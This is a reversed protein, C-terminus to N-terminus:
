DELAEIRKELRRIKQLLLGVFEDYALGLNTGDGSVDVFGGFDARELGAATLAEEVEQAVFGVHYTDGRDNYKFRVPTLKDLMQEYAEPLAEITNKHRRDSTVAAGTKYLYVADKGRLYLNTYDNGVVCSNANDVRLVYYSNGDKDAIRIGSGNPFRAEKGLHIETGDIEVKGGLIKVPAGGSINVVGNVKNIIGARASVEADLAETTALGALQEPTVCGALQDQTVYVVLSEPKVYRSDTQALVRAEVSTAVANLDSTYSVKVADLGSQGKRDGAADAGTLSQIDKGLVIQSNAPNLLDETMQSLQFDENVGHPASVVRIFDGVYFTDLEKDLYSLDLATLELSTIFVKNDDLYARAKKLLNAPETVDDWTQTTMIIGRVAVADDALLYDEGGNVSAITVRKETKEDKAGYPIIGTALSTTNAGTSSFDLLNEGFEISQGSRQGLSELWHIVRSGDAETTFKIYGGCRELLKNLTDLTTEASESEVRIYDNPDTVTVSGVTFRKEPDIQSNHQNILTVFCSRPTAQYTYPRNISDRLFCMEGECTVTRHGFSNDAYYLARGRFRLVNGRYITVVTRHGVFYNYAPHEPPLIIEATGGVNIGKTIKLGLLDFDEVRSDYVLADDAYVTIGSYSVEVPEVPEVPEDPEVPAPDGLKPLLVSISAKAKTTSPLWKPPSSVSRRQWSTSIVIEKEAYNTVVDLAGEKLDVYHKYTVGGETISPSNSWASAPIQQNSWSFASKGNVVVSGDTRWKYFTANATVALRMKVSVLHSGTSVDASTKAYLLIYYYFNSGSAKVGNSRGIYQYESSLTIM